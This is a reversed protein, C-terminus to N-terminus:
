ALPPPPAILIKVKLFEFRVSIDLMGVLFPALVERSMEGRCRKTKASLAFLAEACNCTKVM